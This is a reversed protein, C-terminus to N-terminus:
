CPKLQNPWARTDIKLRVVPRSMQTVFESALKLKKYTPFKM